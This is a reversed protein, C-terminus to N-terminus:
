QKYINKRPGVEIVYIILENNKVDLIARHKGIRLIFYPCGQKRKIFSFPRIKIRELSNLIREQIDRPLKYLQNEAGKTFKISYM